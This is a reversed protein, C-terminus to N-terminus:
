ETGVNKCLHSEVWFKMYEKNIKGMKNRKVEGFFIRAPRKYQPLSECVEWISKKNCKEGKKLEVVAVVLEGMRQNSLGVVAVDKVINSKRIVHEIQVPYINEGGSIIVDKKRGVLYIRKDPAIYALDGTHLWGNRMIEETAEKDNYYEAMVGPGRLVLEGITGSAVFNDNEDVINVSWLPDARGILVGTQVGM